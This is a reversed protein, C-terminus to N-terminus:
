QVSQLSLVIRECTLQFQKRWLEECRAIERDKEVLAKPDWLDRVTGLPLDDTESAIARMFNYADVPILEPWRHLSPLM